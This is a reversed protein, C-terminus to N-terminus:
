PEREAIVASRMLEVRELEFVRDAQNNDFFIGWEVIHRTNMPRGAEAYLGTSWDVYVHNLGPHLTVDQQYRDSYPVRLRDNVRLWGSLAQDGPLWITLALQNYGSWDQVMERMFLGPYPKTDRVTVQWRYRGDPHAARDLEVGYAYWRGTAPWQDASALVPFDATRRFLDVIAISVPFLSLCICCLAMGARMSAFRWPYPWAVALLLGLWGMWVDGWDPNRGTWQQLWELLPVAVLLALLIKRRWKEGALRLLALSLLALAPFHLWLWLARGLRDPTRDPLPVLLLFLVVWVLIVPRRKAPFIRDTVHAIRDSM